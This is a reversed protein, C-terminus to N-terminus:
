YRGFFVDTREPTRREARGDEDEGRDHRHGTLKMSGTASGTCEGTILNERLEPVSEGEIFLRKEGNHM